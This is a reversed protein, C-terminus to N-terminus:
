ALPGAAEAVADLETVSGHSCARLVTFSHARSHELVITNVVILTLLNPGLAVTHQGRM